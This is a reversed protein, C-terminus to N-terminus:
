AGLKPREPGRNLDPRGWWQNTKSNTEKKNYAGNIQNIAQKLANEAIRSINLGLSHAKEVIKRDLYINVRKKM